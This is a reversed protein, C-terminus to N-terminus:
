LTGYAMRLKIYEIGLDSLKFIIVRSTPAYEGIILYGDALDKQFDGMRESGFGVFEIIDELARQLSDDYDMRHRVYLEVRKTNFANISESRM